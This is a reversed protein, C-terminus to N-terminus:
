HALAVGEILRSEQQSLEVKLADMLSKEFKYDAQNRTLPQHTGTQTELRLELLINKAELIDHAIAPKNLDILTSLKEESATDNTVDADQVRLLTDIKAYASRIKAIKLQLTAELRGVRTEDAIRGKSDRLTSEFNFHM